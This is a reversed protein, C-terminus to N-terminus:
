PGTPMLNHLAKVNHPSVEESRALVAAVHSFDNGFFVVDKTGPGDVEAFIGTGRPPKCLEVRVDRVNNLWLIPNQSYPPRAALRTVRLGWVDQCVVAPREEAGLYTVEVNELRVNRAHRIFFAYAPLMGFMKYEPYKSENEPIELTAMHAKGNGPFTLRVDRITVNEVRYDPIGTISCGISDRVVAEIGSILVNRLAGMGPKPMDAKYPRARNGLRIFIPCGVGDMVLNSVIVRDLVGGDVEEIALGALRTDYITCNTIVINQFGGNSETGLKLANCNTNLVCNTITVDRCARGSTAKLVIADDGSSIECGSIRVRTCSDIDIGDNNHNVKSHVRIGRINVDECALYHQVWMPSNQITVDAVTVNRCEIFRMLYPRVKYPGSFAAGQGDITGRGLIAINEVREAYILSKDTYNDTYSRYAPVHVPYDELRTSGLLVAGSELYLTVHSRLEITGSLYRGPPFYVTGGGRSACSDIAGQIAQTSLTRGDPVAGFDIVNFTYNSGATAPIGWTCLTFLVFGLGLLSASWVSVRRNEM